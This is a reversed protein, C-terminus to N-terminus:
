QTCGQTGIRTIISVTLSHGAFCPDYADRNIPSITTTGSTPLNDLTFMRNALNWREDGSTFGAFGDDEFVRGRIKFSEGEGVQFERGTDGFGITVDTGVRDKRHNFSFLRGGPAVVHSSEIIM